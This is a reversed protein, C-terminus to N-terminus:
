NGPSAAVEEGGSKGPDGQPVPFPLIETPRGDATDSEDTPVPIEANYKTEKSRAHGLRFRLGVRRGHKHVDFEVGPCGLVAGWQAGTLEQWGKPDAAAAPNDLAERFAVALPTEAQVEFARWGRGRFKSDQYDAAKCAAFFLARKAANADIGEIAQESLLNFGLDRAIEPFTL